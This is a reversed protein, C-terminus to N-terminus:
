KTSTNINNTGNNKRKRSFKIEKMLIDKDMSYVMALILAMISAIQSRFTFFYHKYSHNALVFYRIYPVTAIALLLGSIWLKKIDKKRVFIIEIIGLVIPIIIWKIKKKQTNLPFLTFINKSIAKFPLNQKTTGVVSGNIRIMANDKVYEFANIKLIISALIWKALWMAVYSISWLMGLKFVFKIGQKLNAIRGDKYRIVLIIILPVLLTIIETTLFDLYCTVMGTIFFLISLKEDNKEVLIAIISTILMVLFMWTYSLCFPVVFVWCMVLGILFTIVIDLQKRNLLIIILTLTLIGLIIANLIYIQGLNFFVLLPRVISMSGHWYRLYQEIGKGDKEVMKNLDIEPPENIVEIYESITEDNGFQEKFSLEQDAYRTYFKSEMISKIPENTDICYIINLLFADSISHLFTYDRRKVVEKVEETTGLGNNQSEKINEKIARQPIKATVALCTFLLFLM